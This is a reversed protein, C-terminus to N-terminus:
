YRPNKKKCVPYHHVLHIFFSKLHTWFSQLTSYCDNKRHYWNLIICKLLFISYFRWQWQIDNGSFCMFVCFCANHLSLIYFLSHTKANKLSGSTTFHDNILFVGHESSNDEQYLMTLQCTPSANLLMLYEFLIGIDQIAWPSVLVPREIKCFLHYNILTTYPKHSDTGLARLVCAQQSIYM